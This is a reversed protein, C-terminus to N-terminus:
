CADLTSKEEIQSRLTSAAAIALDQVKVNTAKPAEVLAMQPYIQRQATESLLRVAAVVIRVRQAVTIVPVAVTELHRAKVNTAMPVAARATQLFAPLPQSLLGPPQLPQAPESNPNASHQIDTFRSDNAALHSHFMGGLAVTKHGRAASITLIAVHVMCLIALIDLLAVVVEMRLQVQRGHFQPRCQPSSVSEPNVTPKPVSARVQDVNVPKTAQHLIPLYAYLVLFSM